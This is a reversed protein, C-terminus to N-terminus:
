PAPDAGSREERAGQNHKEINAASKGINDVSAATTNAAQRFAKYANAQVDIGVRQNM